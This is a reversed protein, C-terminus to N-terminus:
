IRARLGAFVGRGEAGYGFEPEYHKDFLNEARAFLEYHETVRWSGFINVLAYDSLHERVGVDDFRPGIYTISSGLTWDTDPLWTLIATAKSHPRRPLTTHSGTTLDVASLNTYNTSLTLSDALRVSSEAEFGTSRTRGINTYFGFPRSACSTGSCSVFDILNTAHEEFYVLSARARDDFFSKSAGVEWGRAEEPKLPPNGPPPSFESFRQFLSPAKFGDGYNAHLTVNLSPIRWAGAFKLSTHSGFIDDNEYRAGGTVTLQDLFTHQAQLYYGSTQSQGRDTQTPFFSSFSDGHFHSHETEAGFTIEDDATPDITGQYELRVIDSFDDSNLHIFDFASDFYRRNSSTAILAMRNHFVGGFLDVNVGAYGAFLEQRNNAKSDMVTFPPTFSFNDDFGAHGNTFYGRLDISIQDSLHARVNATAGLNKYGDPESNGNRSDAASVGRTGLWNLAAGYEVIDSTGNAAVNMHFTDFAGGEASATLAFPSTGGRRTLINVVGGIADSGYLTSQPGRLVEMRDINNVLLDGLIATDDTASPDNLRVGDVLVVTQGAEAGRLSISTFQGVAGNRNVMLGPLEQLADSAVAIQQTELDKAEIIDITEGTKGAPQPSRTATVVVTETDAAAASLPTLLSVAFLLIRRMVNEQRNSCSGDRRAVTRNINGPVSEGTFLEGATVATEGALGRRVGVPFLVVARPLDGPERTEIRRGGEWPERRLPLLVFFEGTV